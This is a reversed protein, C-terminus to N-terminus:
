KFEQENGFRHGTNSCPPGEMPRNKLKAMFCNMAFPFLKRFQRKMQEDEYLSSDSDWLAAYM